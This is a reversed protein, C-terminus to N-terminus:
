VEEGVIGLLAKTHLIATQKGEETFPYCMDNSFLWESSQGGVHFRTYNFMEPILTSPMYFHEDEVPRFSIDPVEEGNILKVRVPRKPVKFKIEDWFLTPTGSISSCVGDPTYYEECSTFVVEIYTRSKHTTLTGRVTGWGYNFDWVKDGVKAYEFTTTKM